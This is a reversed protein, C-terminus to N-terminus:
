QLYDSRYAVSGRISFRGDDYYLTANWSSRKAGPLWPREFSGTSLLFRDIITSLMMDSRISTTTNPNAASRAGGKKSASARRTIAAGRVECARGQRADVRGTM